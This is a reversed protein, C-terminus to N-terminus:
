RKTQSNTINVLIEVKEQESKTYKMEKYLETELNTVLEKKNEKGNLEIGKSQLKKVLDQKILREPRI